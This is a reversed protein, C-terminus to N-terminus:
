QATPTQDGHRQPQDFAFLKSVYSLVACAHLAHKLV